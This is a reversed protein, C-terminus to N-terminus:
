PGKALLKRMWMPWRVQTPLAEIRDLEREMQRLRRPRPGPRAWRASYHDYFHEGLRALAFVSMGPRLVQSVYKARHCHRCAWNDREDLRILRRVRRHCLPCAWYLQPAQWKYPWIHRLPLSTYVGTDGERYPLQTWVAQDLGFRRRFDKRLRPLRRKWKRVEATCWLAEGEEVAFRIYLTVM